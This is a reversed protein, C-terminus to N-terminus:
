MRVVVKVAPYLAIGFDVFKYKTEPAREQAIRCYPMIDLSGTLYAADGLPYAITAGVPIGSWKKSFDNVQPFSSYFLGAQAHIEAGIVSGVQWMYSGGAATIITGDLAAFVRVSGGFMPFILEPTVGGGYLPDRTFVNVVGSAGLSIFASAAFSSDTIILTDPAMKMKAIEKEQKSVVSRLSAIEKQLKSIATNDAQVPKSAEARWTWFGRRDALIPDLVVVTYGYSEAYAKAQRGREVAYLPNIVANLKQGPVAPTKDFTPQIYITGHEFSLFEQFAQLGANDELLTGGASNDGIFVKEQGAALQAVLILLIVAFAKITRM